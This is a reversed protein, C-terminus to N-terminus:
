YVEGFFTKKNQRCRFELRQIDLSQNGPETFRLRELGLSEGGRWETLTGIAYLAFTDPSCQARSDERFKEVRV